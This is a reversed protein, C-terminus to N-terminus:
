QWLALPNVRRKLHQSVAEAVARAEETNRRNVFRGRQVYHFKVGFEESESHPSPFLVLNGDYFNMNSFYYYDPRVIELNSM